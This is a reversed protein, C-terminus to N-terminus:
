NILKVKTGESVKDVGEVILIEGVKIQGEVLFDMGVLQRSNLRRGISKNNKVFYAYYGDKKKKTAARPIVIANQVNKTIVEVEMTAGSGTFNQLDSFKAEVHYQKKVPDMQMAKESIKGNFSKGKYNLKVKNDVQILDIDKVPVYFALKLEKTNAISCIKDEAEVEENLHVFVDTVVGSFPAIIVNQKELRELAKKQVDMQTKSRKLEVRAVSGIKFLKEQREYTDKLEKYTLRAQEIELEHNIPPYTLLVDGKNIRQGTKVNLKLVQGALEAVYTMSKHYNAKAFYTKSLEVDVPVIKKGRVSIIEEVKKTSNETANSGCSVLGICIALLSLFWANNKM